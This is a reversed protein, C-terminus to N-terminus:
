DDTEGQKKMFRHWAMAESVMDDLHKSVYRRLQDQTMPKFTQM